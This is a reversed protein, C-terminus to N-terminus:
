PEHVFEVNGIRSYRISELPHRNYIAFIFRIQFPSVPFLGGHPTLNKAGFDFPTSTAIKYPEPSDAPFGQKARTKEIHQKENKVM